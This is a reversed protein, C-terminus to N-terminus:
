WGVRGIRASEIFAACERPEGMQWSEDTAPGIWVTRLRQRITSESLVLPAHRLVRHSNKRLPAIPLRLPSPGQSSIDAVAILPKPHLIRHAVRKLGAYLRRLRGQKPPLVPHQLHLDGAYALARMADTHSLGEVRNIPQDYPDAGLSPEADTTSGM